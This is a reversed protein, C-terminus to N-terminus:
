ENGRFFKSGGEGIFFRHPINDHFWPRKLYAMYKNRDENLMILRQSILSSFDLKNFQLKM